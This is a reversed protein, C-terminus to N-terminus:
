RVTIRAKPSVNTRSITRKGRLITVRYSVNYNGPSVRRFTVENRRSNRRLIDGANSGTGRLIVQYRFSLRKAARPGMTPRLAARLSSSNAAAVGSYSDMVVTVQRGSVTVEPPSTIQTDPTLVPELEALYIDKSAVGGAVLSSDSSSFVVFQGDASMMCDSVVGTSQAGAETLSVRQTVGLDRDYVFVDSVNNTDNSVLNSASSIFAVYRGDASVSPFSSANNPSEGSTGVSVREIVGTLRSYLFVDQQLNDDESVLNSASSSFVVFDGDASMFPQTSSGNSEQSSAGVSIRSLAGTSVRYLFIDTAGNIDNLVLDTADSAFVAYSADDSM